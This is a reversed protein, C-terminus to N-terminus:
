SLFVLVKEPIFVKKTHLLYDVLSSLCQKKNKKPIGCGTDSIVFEILTWRTPLRTNEKDNLREIYKVFRTSFNISGKDTFKFANSLLAMLIQETRIYDGVLQQPTNADVQVEFSLNKKISLPVFSKEVRTTLVRMDFSKDLVRHHFNNSEIFALIENLQDLLSASAESVLGLQKKREPDPDNKQLSQTLSIIGDFPTRLDHSMNRLFEAKAELAVEARSEAKEKLSRLEQELKKRETIDVSIGVVGLIDGQNDKLPAKYSLLTKLVGKFYGFEESLLKEGHEIVYLDNKRVTEASARDMGSFEAVEYITKGIIEDSNKFGFWHAQNENCGLLKGDRDVFYFNEPMNQLLNELYTILALSGSSIADKLNPFLKKGQIPTISVFDGQANLYV